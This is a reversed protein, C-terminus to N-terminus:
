PPAPFHARAFAVSEATFRTLTAAGDAPSLGGVPSADFHERDLSKPAPRAFYPDGLLRALAKQDGTGARALRGDEDMPHGIAPRTWDDIMRKCPGTDFPTTVGDGGIWTDNGVGDLNLIAIPKELPEELARYFLPAFPAGEGGAAVDAARFDCVV